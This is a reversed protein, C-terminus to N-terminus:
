SSRWPCNAWGLLECLELDHPAFYDRLWRLTELSPIPRRQLRATWARVRKRWSSLFLKPVHLAKDIRHLFRLGVADTAHEHPFTAPGRAPDLGAFHFLRQAVEAALAGPQHGIATAVVFDCYLRRRVQPENASHPRTHRAMALPQKRQFVKVNAQASASAERRSLFSIKRKTCKKTTHCHDFSRQNTDRVISKACPGLHDHKGVTVQEARPGHVGLVGTQPQQL